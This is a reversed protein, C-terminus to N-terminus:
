IKTSQSELQTVGCMSIAPLIIVDGTEAQRTDAAITVRTSVGPTDIYLLTHLNTIWHTSQRSYIAHQRREGTICYQLQLSYTTCTTYLNTTDMSYEPCVTSAECNSYLSMCQRSHIIIIIITYHMTQQIYQTRKVISRCATTCYWSILASIVLSMCTFQQVASSNIIEGKDMCTNGGAHLRNM